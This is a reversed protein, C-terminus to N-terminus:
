KNPSDLQPDMVFRITHGLFTIDSNEITSELLNIIITAINKYLRREVVDPLWSINTDPNDLINQVFEEIKKESQIKIEKNSLTTLSLGTDKNMNEKLQNIEKTLSLNVKKLYENEDKIKNQQHSQQIVPIIKNLQENIRYDLNDKKRTSCFSGM